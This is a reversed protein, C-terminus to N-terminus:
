MIILIFQKLVYTMQEIMFRRTKLVEILPVMLDLAEILYEDHIIAEVKIRVAEHNEERLLQAVNNREMRITTSKKNKLMNMRSKCTELQRM